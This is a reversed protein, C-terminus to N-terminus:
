CLICLTAYVGDTEQHRLQQDVVYQDQGGGRTVPNKSPWASDIYAALGDDLRTGREKELLLKLRIEAADDASLPTKPIEAYTPPAIIPVPSSIANQHTRPGSYRPPHGRRLSGPHTAPTVPVTPPSIDEETDTDSTTRCPIM